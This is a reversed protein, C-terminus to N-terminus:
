QPYFILKMLLYGRPTLAIPGHLLRRICTPLRTTQMARVARPVSCAHVIYAARAEVLGLLLGIIGAYARGSSRQAPPPFM